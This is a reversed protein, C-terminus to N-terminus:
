NNEWSNLAKLIRQVKFQFQVIKNRKILNKNQTKANPSIFEKGFLVKLMENSINARRQNPTIAQEEFSKQM